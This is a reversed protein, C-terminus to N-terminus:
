SQKVIHNGIVCHLCRKPSCYKNKLQLLAQSAFADRHDVGLDEWQTLIANREPPLSELLRIARNSCDEKGRMKGYIFLFPVVTNIMITQFAMQGFSKPRSVSDKGFVYHTDWYESAQIDFLRNFDDLDELQIIQSFLHEKQHILGAFQALRVSPFNVPRLRLFKWLYGDIPELGYKKQLVQYEAYLEQQYSDTRDMTLLGSQGFLLAEVQFASDKHKLLTKYPLSRALSEFPLANLSFGFNRAIQQYLTEEWDNGTQDFIHMIAESKQELREIALRELWTMLSFSDVKNFDDFCAIQTRTSYLRNYNNFYDEKFHLEMVPIKQGKSNFVDADNQFVVHLIVNNYAPDLHHGHRVWDSAKIHIEACGVWLTPGIRVRTNIFDPGADANNQGPTIVEIVEQENTRNSEPLLLQHQWIYHLFDETM